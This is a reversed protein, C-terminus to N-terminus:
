NTGCAEGRPALIKDVYSEWADTGGITDYFCDEGECETILEMYAEVSPNEQLRKYCKIGNADLIGDEACLDLLRECVELDNRVELVTQATDQTEAAASPQAICSTLCAIACLSALAYRVIRKGNCTIVHVVALRYIRKRM